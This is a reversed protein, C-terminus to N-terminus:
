NAYVLGSPVQDTDVSEILNSVMSGDVVVWPRHDAHLVAVGDPATRATFLLLDRMLPPLLAVAVEYICRSDLLPIKNGGLTSGFPVKGSKKVNFSGCGVEYLEDGPPGFV